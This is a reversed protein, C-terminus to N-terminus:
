LEYNIKVTEERIVINQNDHNLFGMEFSECFLVLPFLFLLLALLVSKKM